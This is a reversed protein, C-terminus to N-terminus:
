TTSAGCTACEDSAPPNLAGCEPCNVRGGATGEPEDGTAAGAAGDGAVEPDYVVGCGDCRAVNKGDWTSGVLEDVGGDQAMRVNVTTAETGDCVPCPM